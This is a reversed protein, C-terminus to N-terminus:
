WTPWHDGGTIHGMTATWMASRGVPLTMAKSAQVSAGLECVIQFGAVPANTGTGSAVFRKQEPWMRKGSPRRRTTPPLTCASTPILFAVSKSEAFLVQDFAEAM